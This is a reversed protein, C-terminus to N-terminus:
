LSPASSEATDVHTYIYDGWPKKNFNAANAATYFYVPGAGKGPATWGFQWGVPGDLQGMFSGKLTHEVYQRVSGDEFTHTKQQTQEEDKLWFDGIPLNNSDLATVQFGWRKQGEQQLTVTVTYRKLPEYFKPIGALQLSGNGSNLENQTHCKRAQCSPEGPANTSASRAGKGYHAAWLTGTALMVLGVLAVVRM